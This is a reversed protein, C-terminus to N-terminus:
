RPRSLASAPVHRGGAGSRPAIFLVPPRYNPQGGPWYSCHLQFSPSFLPPLPKQHVNTHFFARIRGFGFCLSAAHLVSLYPAPPTLTSAPFCCCRTPFVNGVPLLFSKRSFLPGLLLLAFVVPHIVLLSLFQFCKLFQFGPLILWLWSRLDSGFLSPPAAKGLLLALSGHPYYFSAHACLPFFFFVGWSFFCDDALLVAGEGFTLGSLPVLCPL